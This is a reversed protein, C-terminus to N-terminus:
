EEDVNVGREKLRCELEVVQGLTEDMKQFYRCVGVEDGKAEALDSKADYYSAMARLYRCRLLEYEVELAAYKKKMEMLGDRAEMEEKPPYPYPNLRIPYISRLDEIVAKFKEEDLYFKWGYHKVIGDEDELARLMQYRATAEPLELAQILYEKIEEKTKGENGLFECIHRYKCFHELWQKQM